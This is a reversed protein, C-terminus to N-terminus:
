RLIQVATAPSCGHQVLEVAEHLDIRGPGDARRALMFALREPYGAAVLQELRWAIVFDGGEYHLATRDALM